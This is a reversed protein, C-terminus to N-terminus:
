TAAETEESYHTVAAEPTTSLSTEFLMYHRGTEPVDYLHLLLRRGEVPRPGSFAKYHLSWKRLNQLFFLLKGPLPAHM